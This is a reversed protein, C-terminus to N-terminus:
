RTLWLVFIGGGGGPSTGTFGVSPPMGGRRVPSTGRKARRLPMWGARPFYLCKGRFLRRAGLVIISEGGPERSHQAKFETQRAGRAVNASVGTGSGRPHRAIMKWSAIRARQEFYFVNAKRKVFM